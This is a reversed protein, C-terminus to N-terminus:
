SGQLGVGVEDEALAAETLAGLTTAIAAVRM